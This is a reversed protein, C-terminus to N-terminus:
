QNNSTTPIVIRMGIEISAPDDILYKNAAYIAKWQRKDGLEQQAISALTDGEQVVYVRRHQRPARLITDGGLSHAKAPTETVTREVPAASAEQTDKKTDTKDQAVQLNRNPQEIPQAITTPVSTATPGFHMSVSIKQHTDLQNILGFAYDISTSGLAFGAGASFQSSDGLKRFGARVALPGILTELGVGPAFQKENNMYSGDLLLSTSMSRGPLLLFSGGVRLTEPLTDGESIYKLQTGYNLASAGISLRSSVRALLGIDGSFATATYIGALTSHLYTGALGFSINNWQHAYALKASMDEQAKVSSTTGNDNVLDINGANYYGVSLGFGGTRSANPMGVTLHGDRDGILGSELLFSAQGRTLTAVAAPNYAIATVDDSVATFAEGLAEPRSGIGETLTLGGSSASGSALIRTPITLLNGLFIGLVILIKKMDSTQRTGIEKGPKNARNLHSM